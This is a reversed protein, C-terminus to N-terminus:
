LGTKEDLKLQDIIKMISIIENFLDRFTQLNSEKFDNGMAFMDKGTDIALILKNDKFSGRIYNAHFALKLHELRDIMATTLIYRAEVQDTSYVEYKNMFDVSELKINEYKKHNIKIKKSKFSKNLFFTHGKFDKNMKLEIVVGKFRAYQICKKIVFFIAIIFAPIFIFNILPFFFFSILLAALMPGAFCGLFILCFPILMATINNFIATNTEYINIEINKFVLYITDDFLAYPFPNFINTKRYNDIKEWYGSKLGRYWDANQSFIDLFYRMLVTKLNYEFNSKITTSGDTNRPDNRTLLVLWVMSCIVLGLSIICIPKAIPQLNVPIIKYLFVLAFFLFFSFWCVKFAIIKPAGEKREKEYEALRPKIKNFYFEKFDAEMQEYTKNEM